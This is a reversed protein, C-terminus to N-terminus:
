PQSRGHHKSFNFRREADKRANIADEINLFGGLMKTKGGVKIKAIYKENTKCWHVGSCGTSNNANIKRNHQNEVADVDRLNVLRNDSKKGNIHDVHDADVGFCMKWIIRHAFFNEHLIKLVIYGAPTITGAQSEAYQENWTRLRAVSWSNQAAFELSREKWRLIGTQPDYSLIDLLAEQSPLEKRRIPKARTM